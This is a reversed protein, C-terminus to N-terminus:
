ITIGGDYVALIDVTIASFAPYSLLTVKTSPAAGESAAVYCEQLTGLRAAIQCSTRTINTVSVVANEGACAIFVRPVGSLPRRFKVTTWGANLTVRQADMEMDELAGADGSGGGSAALAALTWFADKPEAADTDLGLASCVVDPLVNGKSYVSGAQQANDAYSLVGEVVNGNDLTIRIRNAKGPEPIRDRM